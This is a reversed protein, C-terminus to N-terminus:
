TWRWSDLLQWLADVHLDYDVEGTQFLVLYVTGEHGIIVARGAVQVDQQDYRFEFSTAEAGAVKRAIPSGIPEATRNRNRLGVLFDQRLVDLAQQRPPVKTRTISINAVLGESPPGSLIRDSQVGPDTPVRAGLDDTRDTWGQPETFSYDTARITPGPPATSPPAPSVARAPRADDGRDGGLQRVGFVVGAIVLVSALTAGLVLVVMRMRRPTGLEEDIPDTESGLFARVREGLSRPEGDWDDQSV